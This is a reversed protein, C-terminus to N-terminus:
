EESGFFATNSHPQSTLFMEANLSLILHPTKLPTGSINQFIEDALTQFIKLCCLFIIIM